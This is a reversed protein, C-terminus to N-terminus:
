SNGASSRWHGAHPSSSISILPWVSIESRMVVTLDRMLDLTMDALLIAAPAVARHHGRGPRGLCHWATPIRRLKPDAHRHRLVGIVQREFPLDPHHRAFPQRDIRLHQPILDM